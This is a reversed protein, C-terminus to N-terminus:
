MGWCLIAFTVADQEYNEGFDGSKFGVVLAFLIGCVRIALSGEDRDAVGGMSRGLSM